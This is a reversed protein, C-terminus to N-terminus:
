GVGLASATVLLMPPGEPLWAPRPEWVGAVQGQPAPLHQSWASNVSPFGLSHPLNRAQGVGSPHSTIPRSELSPLPRWVPGNRRAASHPCLDPPPPRTLAEGVLAQLPHCRLASPSSSLSLFTLSGAHNVAGDSAVGGGPSDPVGDKRLFLLSPCPPLLVTRLQRPHVLLPQAPSAQSEDLGRCVRPYRGLM